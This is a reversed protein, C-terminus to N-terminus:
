EKVPHVSAGLCRHDEIMPIIRGERFFLKHSKYLSYAGILWYYGEEGNYGVNCNVNNHRAGFAEIFFTGGTKWGM